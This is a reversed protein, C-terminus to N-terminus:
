IEKKLAWRKSTTMWGNTANMFWEMDGYGHCCGGTILSQISYGYERTEETCTSLDGFVYEIKDM